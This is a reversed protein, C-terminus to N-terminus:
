DEFYDEPLNLDVEDAGENEYEDDEIQEVQEKTLVVGKQELISSHWTNNVQCGNGETCLRDLENDAIMFYLKTPIDIVRSDQCCQYLM